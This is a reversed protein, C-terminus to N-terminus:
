ELPRLGALASDPLRDRLTAVSLGLLPHRWDPALEALPVLVFGRDQLRPHPLILTEPTARRQEDPPLNRWMAHTEPDPLVTDGAFLLDIDLTRPGWRATRRRGFAREVRHFLALIRHLPIGSRFLAAGNVFDPGSGAPVAASEYLRSVPGVQLDQSELLDLASYITQPRDGIRTPLNAGISLAMNFKRRGV